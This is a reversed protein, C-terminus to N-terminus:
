TQCSRCKGYYTVSHSDVQVAPIPFPVSPLTSPLDLIAGCKKCVFHDHNHVNWDYRTPEDAFFLKVLRGEECLVLLNRFVTARGVSPDKEQVACVIEESTPHYLTKICDYVTQRQHTARRQM